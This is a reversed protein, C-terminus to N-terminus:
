PKIRRYQNNYTFGRWLPCGTEPNRLQIVNNETRDTYTLSMLINRATGDSLLVKSIQVEVEDGVDPRLVGAADWYAVPGLGYYKEGDIMIGDLTGAPSVDAVVGSIPADQVGDLVLTCVQNRQYRKTQLQGSTEAWASATLAVLAMVLVVYVIGNKRM